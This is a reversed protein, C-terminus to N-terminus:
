NGVQSSTLAVDRVKKASILKIKESNERASLVQVHIDRFVALPWVKGVLALQHPRHVVHGVAIPRVVALIKGINLNLSREFETLM